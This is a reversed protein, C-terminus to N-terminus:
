EGETTLAGSDPAEGPASREFAGETLQLLAQQHARLHAICNVYGAPNTEKLDLGINGVLFSKLTAIHVAHDDVDLDIAVTSIFGGLEDPVPEAGFRILDNIERAQKVRQDEGPIDLDDMALTTKLVKANAPTYLAANVQPNNLEM